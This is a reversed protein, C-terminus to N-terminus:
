PLGQAVVPSPFYPTGDGLQGLGGDGWCRAEGTELVVCSTTDGVSLSTADFVDTVMVPTLMDESSGNGLRGYMGAGWCRVRGSALRACTHLAGVEVEVADSVGVVEVPQRQLATGGYGLQGSGGHGWCSIKGGQRLACIHGWDVSVTIADSIGGVVAPTPSDSRTGTGLEGEYNSGWCRVEGSARVMCTKNFGASVSVADSIGAVPTPSAIAGGMPSTGLQGHSNNGWCLVEGTAHVACVHNGGPSVSVIDELGPVRAPAALDYPQNTMTGSGLQGYSNAGWCWLEGTGRLACVNYTGTELATVGDLGPVDVPKPLERETPPLGLHVLDGWCAATGDRHTGCAYLPGVSVADFAASSDVGVPTAAISTRGNGLQGASALGWCVLQGSADFACAHDPGNGLGIAASLGLVSVPVPSNVLTGDGLAGYYNHGWCAVEGNRRRACAHRARIQVNVADDIGVVDVPVWSPETTGDGIQGSANNSGWCAVRGSPRTACANDSDLSISTAGNLDPIPIPVPTDTDSGDGLPAYSGNGWCYVEGNERRGCSSRYGAAILTLDSLGVVTVPVASETGLGDGLAGTSGWGWCVAEGSARLACNHAAGVSLQVADSLGTVAVPSPSHVGPQGNGLQGWWNEGWCRVEGNALLACVHWDGAGIAIADTIGTVEVPSLSSQYTGDGLTGRNAGWCYVKGGVIVCTFSSGPAIAADAVAECRDGRGDQDADAQDPNAVAPCNDACDPSGDDDSDTALSGCGCVGEAEPDSCVGTAPDCTGAVHCRDSPVCTVPDSGRCVGAVCQDTLTCADGDACPTGDEAVPRSCEGTLPDCVGAPHCPDTAVCVVGACRDIATFPTASTYSGAANTVTISGSPTGPPVTVAIEGSGTITFPSLPVDGVRVATVRIFNVGVITLEAPLTSESPSFSGIVPRRLILFSIRSAGDGRPTEVTIKGTKAGAPVTCVIEAESQSTIVAPLTGFKVGTAIAFGSGSLIVSDGPIGISPSFDVIEPLVTFSTAASASGNPTVVVIKGSTAGNPVTAEIHADDLATFEAPTSGFMVGSAQTYGGGTLMVTEGPFGEDPSYEPVSPAVLFSTPSTATGAPTTVTIPGSPAFPPVVAQLRSARVFTVSTAVTGAFTVTAEPAFNAGNINITAGQVAKPTIASIRPPESNVAASLRGAVDADHAEEGCAVLLCVFSSWVLFRVLRHM